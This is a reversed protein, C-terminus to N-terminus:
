QEVLERGAEVVGVRHDDGVNIRRALRGDRTGIAVSQHLAQARVAVALHDREVSRLVQRADDLPERLRAVDHHAEAGAVDRLPGVRQRALKRREARHRSSRPRILKGSMMGSRFALIGASRPRSMAFSGSAGSVHNRTPPGACTNNMGSSSDSRAYKRAFRGASIGTVTIPSPEFRITRSPPTGPTTILSPRPKPSTFTSGPSRMRAPVATGSTLTLRAACSAAIAPSAKKRPMGPAIPPASRM